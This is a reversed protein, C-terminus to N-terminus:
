YGLTGDLSDDNEIWDAVTLERYETKTDRIYVKAIGANLIQRKCMM